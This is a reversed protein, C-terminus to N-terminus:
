RRSLINAPELASHPTLEDVTVQRLSRKFEAQAGKSTCADIHPSIADARAREAARAGTEITGPLRVRTVNEWLLRVRRFQFRTKLAGSSTPGHRHLRTCSLGRWRADIPALGPRSPALQFTTSSRDAVSFRPRSHGVQPSYQATM